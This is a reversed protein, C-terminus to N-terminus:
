LAVERYFIQFLYFGFYILSLASEYKLFSIHIFYQIWVHLCEVSVSWWLERFAFLEGVLSFCFSRWPCSSWLHHCCSLNPILGLGTAAITVLVDWHVGDTKPYPFFPSFMGSTSSVSGIVSGSCRWSVLCDPFLIHLFSVFLFFCPSCYVFYVFVWFFLLLMPVSCWHYQVCEYGSPINKESSWLWPSLMAVGVYRCAVGM